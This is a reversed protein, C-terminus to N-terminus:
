LEECSLIEKCGEALLWTELISSRVLKPSDHLKAHHRWTSCDLALILISEQQTKSRSKLNQFETSSASVCEM